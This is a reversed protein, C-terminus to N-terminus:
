SNIKMVSFFFQNLKNFVFAIIVTAIIVMSAFGVASQKLATNWLVMMALGQYLYIEFSINGLFLLIKNEFKILMSLYLVIFCFVVARFVKILVVILDFHIIRGGALLIGFFFCALLFKIVRNKSLFSMSRELDYAFFLGFSFAFVTNYWWEGFGIFYMVLIYVINLSICVVLGKTISLWRFCLYFLIYLIFIVLVYWSYPVLETHGLALQKFIYSFTKMDGQLIHLIMYILNAIIYPIVICLIRKRLFGQMYDKKKILSIMLGYGSYFFFITAMSAGINKLGFDIVKGFSTYGVIHHLLIIIAVIGRVMTCTNKSLYRNNMVQEGIM